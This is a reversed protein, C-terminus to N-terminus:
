LSTFWGCPDEGISIDSEDPIVDTFAAFLQTPASPRSQIFTAIDHNDTSGHSRDTSAWFYNAAFWLIGQRLGSWSDVNNLWAIAM